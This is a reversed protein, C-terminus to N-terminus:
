NKSKNKKYIFRESISIDKFGLIYALTTVAAPLLQILAILIVKLLSLEKFIFAGNAIPIIISYLWSNLFGFISVPFVSAFKIPALGLFLTFLIFPAVGILGARLGLFLDKKKHNFHVLNSDKTGIHWFHPYLFSIVLVSCFFQTISYYLINQQKTLQSRIHTETIAYGQAEFEARKTDEGDAYYHTYLQVLQDNDETAGMAYYGINECLLGNFIFTFSLVIFFSMINAVLVRSFVTGGLKLLQKM